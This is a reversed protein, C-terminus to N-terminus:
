ELKGFWSTIDFYITKTEDKPGVLEIVDYVKDGANMLGQTKWKWGPYRKNTYIHEASVGNFENTADELVIATELTLGLEDSNETTAAAMTAAQADCRPSWCAAMALSFGFLVVARSVKRMCDEIAKPPIQAMVGTM